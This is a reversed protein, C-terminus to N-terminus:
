DAVEYQRVLKMMDAHLNSVTSEIIKVAKEEATDWDETNLDLQAIRLEPCSLFLADGCGVYKHISMEIPQKLRKNGRRNVDEWNLKM